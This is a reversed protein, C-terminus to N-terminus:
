LQSESPVAGAAHMQISAQIGAHTDRYRDGPELGERPLVGARRM